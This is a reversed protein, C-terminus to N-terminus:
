LYKLIRLDSRRRKFDDYIRCLPYLALLAALWVVYVGGLTVGESPVWGLADGLVRAGHILPIHLLYFFLPTRGFTVLPSPRRVGDTLALFLLAPGLTVALYMLSPPYKTVNFFSLAGYAHDWPHPDGYGGLARSAVFLLVLAGGILGLARRRRPPEWQFIPGAVWGLAMVGIWPVLPYAVYLFWGREGFSHRGQEHLLSWLLGGPHWNDVANHGLCLAAGFVAAVWRPLLVLGGLVIMSVGLAWFVQFVQPRPEISFRWSWGILTVEFLVLLLGREVLFRAQARAPQRSLAAGLGATFVFVPACYHTIFRTIFLAPTTTALATPDAHRFWFDRTHDLAMLAMVVGRLLDISVLRAPRM